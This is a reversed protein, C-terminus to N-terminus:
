LKRDKSSFPQAIREAQAKPQFADLTSRIPILGGLYDDRWCDASRLEDRLPRLLEEETVTSFNDSFSPNSLSFILRSGVKVVDFDLSHM